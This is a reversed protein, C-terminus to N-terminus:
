HGRKSRELRAANTAEWHHHPDLAGEARHDKHGRPRLAESSESSRRLHGARAAERALSQGPPCPRTRAAAGERKAAGSSDGSYLDRQEPHLPWCPPSAVGRGERRQQRQREGQAPRQRGRTFQERQSDHAAGPPARRRRGLGPPRRGEPGQASDRAQGRRTSRATVWAGRLTKEATRPGSFASQSCATASLEQRGRGAAKQFRDDAEDGLTPSLAQRRELVLGM